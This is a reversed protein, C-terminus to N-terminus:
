RATLRDLSAKLERIAAENALGISRVSEAGSRLGSAKSSINEVLSRTEAAERRVAAYGTGAREVATGMAKVADGVSAQVMRLSEIVSNIEKTAGALESMGAIMEQLSARLEESRRHIGQLRAQSEESSSVVASIGANNKSLIDRSKRSNENTEEALKRIEAAVVAFGKGREGAHAAEIAANMALLNTRSAIEEIVSIVALVESSSAELARLSRTTDAFAVDAAGAEVALEESVLTKERASRTIQLISASMEEVAATSRSVAASQAEMAEQVRERETAVKRQDSAGLEVTEGLSSLLGRAASGDADISGAGEAASAALRTLESGVSMTDRSANLILEMADARSRSEAETAELSTIIAQEVNFAITLFAVAIAYFVVAVGVGFGYSGLGEALAPRVVAFLYVAGASLQIVAVTWLQLRRYGVIFSLVLFPVCFLLYMYVDRYGRPEQFAAAVLPILSLLALYAGSAARYRGRRLALLTPASSAINELKGTAAYVLSLAISVGSLALAAIALNRSKIRENVPSSAYRSELAKLLSSGNRTVNM